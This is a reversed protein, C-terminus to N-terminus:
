VNYSRVKRYAYVASGVCVVIFGIVTIDETVGTKPITNESTNKNDKDNITVNTNATNEDATNNSTDGTTNNSTNNTTNNDEGDEILSNLDLDENTAKVKSILPLAVASILIIVGLILLTKKFVNSMDKVEEKSM